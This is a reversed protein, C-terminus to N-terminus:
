IVLFRKKMTGEPMQWVNGAALAYPESLLVGGDSAATDDLYTVTPNRKIVIHKPLGFINSQSLAYCADDAVGGTFAANHDSFEYTPQVRFIVGAAIGMSAAGATSIDFEEDVTLGGTIAAAENDCTGGLTIDCGSIIVEVTGAQLVQDELSYNMKELGRIARFQISNLFDSTDIIQYRKDVIHLPIYGDSYLEYLKNEILLEQLADVESNGLYGSRYTFQNKFSKSYQKIDRASEAYLAPTIGRREKRDIDLQNNFVATCRLTDPVSFSNLYMIYRSDHYKSRDLYYSKKQSLLTSTDSQDVVRVIYKKITSGIGLQLPGVPILVVENAAVNLSSAGFSYTITPTLSSSTFAQVQLSIEKESGTYNFWALWEPQNEGVTKSLPYWSLLSNLEGLETFFDTSAFLSQSIGGCLALKIASTAWPETSDDSIERYRYYYRRLIDAKYPQDDSFAPIPLAPLADELASNIIEQLDWTGHSDVLPTELQAIRAFDNGEYTSEFFVELEIKYNDPATTELVATYNTVTYDTDAIDTDDWALVFSPDIEIAEIWLSAQNTGLRSYVKFYPSILHHAQIQGAVVGLYANLQSYSFITGPAQASIHDEDTPSSKATFTLSQASGGPETWDITLTEDEQIADLGVNRLESRVGQSGYEISSSDTAKIKLIMENRSLSISGPQNIITLAM